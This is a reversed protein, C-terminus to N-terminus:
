RNAIAGKLHECSKAVRDYTNAKVTDNGPGCRVIDGVPKYSERENSQADIYDNGKGGSLRDRGTNGSLIDAGKGGKLIDSAFGGYLEDAGAGGSVRDRGGQATIYDNGNGGDVRDDGNAADIYDGKSGGDIRDDDIGGIICDSKGRGGLVNNGDEGRILDRLKGGRIEDDDPTGQIGNYRRADCERPAPIGAITEITGQPSVSRVRGQGFDGVLFGGSPLASVSRPSLATDTAAFGDGNYRRGGNGAVTDITGDPSVRRIRPGDVILVSGDAGVSLDTPSRLEAATAPGGDGSFGLQGTGALTSLIGRASVERIAAYDGATEAFIYGGDPLGAVAGLYGVPSGEAREAM